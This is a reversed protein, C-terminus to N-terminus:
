KGMHKVMRLVSMSQGYHTPLQLAYIYTPCTQCYSSGATAVGPLTYQQTLTTLSLQHHLSYIVCTCYRLFPGERNSIVLVPLSAHMTSSLVATLIDIVICWACVLRTGLSKVSMKKRACSGPSLALGTGLFLEGNSLHNKAALWWWSLHQCYDWQGSPPVLAFM